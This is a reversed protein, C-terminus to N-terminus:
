YHLKRQQCEEGTPQDTWSEKVGSASLLDAVSKPLTPIHRPPKLNVCIQQRRKTQRHRLPAVMTVTEVNREDFRSLHIWEPERANLGGLAPGSRHAPDAAGAPRREGGGLPPRLRPRDAPLAGDGGDAGSPVHRGAARVRVARGCQVARPREPDDVVEPALETLVIHGCALDFAAPARVAGTWDVLRPGDATMIVNGPHLDGHCLGDGPRLREILTLIGTAIHKPVMGGSLRM